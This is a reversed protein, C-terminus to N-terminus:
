SPYKKATAAAVGLLFAAAMITTICLHVPICRLTFIVGKEELFTRYLGYDLIVIAAIIAPVAFLLPHWILSLFFFATAALALPYTAMRRKNLYGTDLKRKKLLLGAYLFARRFLTTALGKFSAIDDHRSQISGTQLIAYGKATIKHGIEYDEIDAQTYTQDFGGIEKFVSKKIAGCSLTFRTTLGCGSKKWFYSQLARYYAFFNKKLLPEKTYIGCVCALGPTASYQETIRRLADAPLQADADVFVLIDGMATKAGRNRAQAAGKRVRGTIIRVKFEGAIRVTDDTSHDDVVIIEDPNVTQGTVAELCLRITKSANYAPIIVSIPM